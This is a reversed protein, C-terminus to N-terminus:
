AGATLDLGIGKSVRRVSSRASSACASGDLGASPWATTWRSGVGSAGSATVWSQAENRPGDWLATEM